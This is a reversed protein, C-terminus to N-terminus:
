RQGGRMAEQIHGQFGQLERAAAQCLILGQRLSSTDAGEGYSNMEQLGQIYREMQQRFFQAYADFDKNRGGMNPAQKEFNQRVKDANRLHEDLESKLQSRGVQGLEVQQVLQELKVLNAPAGGAPAAVQPPGGTIDTYDTFEISTQPLIANCKVCYRQGRPNEGGCKLCVVGVPAVHAPKVGLRERLQETLAVIRPVSLAILHWGQRLHEADGDDPYFAMRAYALTHSRTLQALEDTLADVPGSELGKIMEQHAGQVEVLERAFKAASIEGNITRGILERLANLNPAAQFRITAAQLEERLHQFALDLQEAPGQLRALTDSAVGSRDAERLIQLAVQLPFNTADYHSEIEFFIPIQRIQSLERRYFELAQEAGSWVRDWLWPPQTGLGARGLEELFRLRHFRIDALAAEDFQKLVEMLQVGGSGLLRLSDELAAREKPNGLFTNAAGLGAQMRELAPGALDALDDRQYLLKFREVDQKLVPLLAAVSPLRVQFDAMAAKGELLNLGVRITHDVVPFPSYVKEKAEEQQLQPFLRLLRESASRLSTISRSLGSKPPRLSLTELAEIQAQQELHIQRFLEEVAPTRLIGPAMMQFLQIGERVFATAPPILESLPQPPDLGDLQSQAAELVKDLVPALFVLVM